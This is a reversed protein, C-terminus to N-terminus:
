LKIHGSEVLQLFMIYNRNEILILIAEPNEM